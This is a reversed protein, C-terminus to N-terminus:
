PELFAAPIRSNLGAMELSKVLSKRNALFASQNISGKDTLERKHEDPPTRLVCAALIKQSLGPNRQNYESLFRNVVKIIEQSNLDSASLANWEYDLSAIEENIWFFATLFEQGAGAFVADKILPGSIKLFEFRLKGPIVWIGTGLKFEESIRGIYELGLNPNSEEVFRLLDGTNFFGETDFAARTRDIDAYYGPTVNPGKVHALFAEGHRTLKLQMSPLPVGVIGSREVPFHTIAVTSTTETLGWGSAWPANRGTVKKCITNLRAWIENSLAAGGYVMLRLNEFFKKALDPSRELHPLLMSYGIPVNTYWTPQAEAINRVTKFIGESTPNGDDIFFTGGNRIVMNFSNVGGSTHNWPLWDCLILPEHEIFPWLQAMQEQQAALMRHTNIVGKPAGTSGSTFIVKGITEGFVAEAETMVSRHADNGIKPFKLSQLTLTTVLQMSAFRNGLSIQALDLLENDLYIIAPDIISIAHLIKEIGIKSQLWKPSVPSVPVGIYLAALVLVAHEISNKGLVLIPKKEGNSARLLCHAIQIMWDHTEAWTIIKWGTADRRAAFAPLTPKQVAWHAVHSCFNNPFSGIIKSSSFLIEEGRHIKVTDAPPFNM